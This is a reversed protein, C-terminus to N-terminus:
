MNQDNRGGVFRAFNLSTRKTDPLTEALALLADRVKKQSAQDWNPVDFRGPGGPQSVTMADQLAHVQKLDEADAPNVLIRVGLTVYRTGIKERTFTYSGAEYVVEPTYHDEDIVLMSMFRKGADPLVITVPGADLDFVAESYLTDRNPRVGTGELPLERYHIFKGLAGRSERLRFYMDTEARKFNDPTVPVADDALAIATAGGISVFVLACAALVTRMM